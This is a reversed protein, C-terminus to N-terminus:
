VYGTTPEYCCLCQLYFGRVKRRLQIVDCIDSVKYGIDFCATACM